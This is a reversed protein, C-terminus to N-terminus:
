QAGGGVRGTAARAAAEGATFGSAWAWHLNFGGCRGDVDLVEGAAFLGPVLRSELSSSDFEDVRAGGRTVQAAKADPGGLVELRFDKLLAALSAVDLESAPAAGAIGAVQMVVQGVTHHLLGDFFTEATRWSLRAIRADLMDRLQDVAIDPFLDISITRAGELARSLDFVLIGSVGYDRFLLEGRETALRAGSDDLLSAECRVRIGSLRRVLAADTKIPGLVPVPPVSGHGLGGLLGSGGGTAVVLADATVREGGASFVEFGGAVAEIRAVTFDTREEVGRHACELRLVDLVSNAVNSAPYVRGEDDAYAALGIERFLELVRECSYAALAPAVFEPRNYADPAVHINGLNCRGNGSALIKRGVRAGAELVTVRAGARAAVIAAPLGAAGGGIILVVPQATNM